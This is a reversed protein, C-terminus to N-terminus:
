VQRHTEEKPGRWLRELPFFRLPGMLLGSCACASTGASPSKRERNPPATSEVDSLRSDLGPLSGSSIAKLNPPVDKSPAFRMSCAALRTRGIVCDEWTTTTTEAIFPTVSRRRAM